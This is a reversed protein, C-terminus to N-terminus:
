TPGTWRAILDVARQSYHSWDYPAASRVCDDRMVRLTEVQACAVLLRYELAREDGAPVVWGNKGEQVLEMAGVRDSVIVPLGVALAEVVVMGFSELRSPLVLCDMTTLLQALERHGLKGHLRIQNPLASKVILSADGVVHLEANPALSLVNSFAHCLVDFGKHHVPVGVFVFKAAGSRRVRVDPAFREVDCGVANVTVKTPDVGADVYSRRALASACVIHTALKLEDLKRQRLRREFFARRAGNGAGLVREQLACHFAAADLLCPIHMARAVQFTRLCCMEYGVVLAPRQRRVQISVWWDFSVWALWEGFARLAPYQIKAVSKKIVLPLLWCHVKRRPLTDLSHRWVASPLYRDFLRPWWRLSQRDPLSTWFSHLLGARELAFALRHAHQRAPQAVLVGRSVM